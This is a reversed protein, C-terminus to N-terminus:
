NFLFDIKNLCKELGLIYNKNEFNKKTIKLWFNKENPNSIKSFSNLPYPNKLMKLIEMRITNNSLVRFSDSCYKHLIKEYHDIIKPTKFIGLFRYYRFIRLFDEKIKKEISGIFKIRCDNLDDVGKFYDIIKGEGTLYLSNITFDRREADLKWDNIYIVETHRGQQNIDKRLSTIEFKRNNVSTTISGYRIAFDYVKFDNRRLIEIVIKPHINIACDIDKIVNNLIANRVCGGVLRLEAGEKEFINIFNKVEKINLLSVLSHKNM